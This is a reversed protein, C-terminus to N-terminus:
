ETVERYSDLIQMFEEANVIPIYHEGDKLEKGQALKDQVKKNNDLSKKVKSTIGRKTRSLDMATGGAWIVYDLEKNFGGAVELHVVDKYENNIHAYFDAKTSFPSGVEDSCIIKLLRVNDSKYPNIIDVHDIAMFLDQKFTMLSEYVKLAKISIEKDGKSIMKNRVKDKIYTIGHKNLLNMVSNIDEFGVFVEFEDENIFDILQGEFDSFELIYDYIRKSCEEVDKELDSAGKKIQLKERLFDLGGKEIDVYASNLDAYGSFIKTASSQINPLQCIKVFEPLTFTKKANLQRELDRSLSENTKIDFCGDEEYEYAFVLAPNDIGFGRIFGKAKEIGVGKIGLDQLLALLRMAVKSPCRPNSCRLSTLVETMETPANCDPSLCVEPLLDLFEDPFDAGKVEKFERVLM